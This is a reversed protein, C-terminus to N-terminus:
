MLIYMLINQILGNKKNSIIVINSILNNEKLKILEIIKDTMSETIEIGYVKPNRTYILNKFESLKANMLDTPKYLNILFIINNKM